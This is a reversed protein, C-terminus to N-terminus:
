AFLEQARMLRDRIQVGNPCTIACEACDSCRVKRIAGPLERFNTLAQHYNGGFDHYALYRLADTVPMGNPCQGKCEYCMRCYSPRIHENMVYLLKEDAPTYPESMARFNMELEPITQM